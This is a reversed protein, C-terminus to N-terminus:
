IILTGEAAGFRNIFNRSKRIGANADTGNPPNKVGFPISLLISIGLTSWVLTNLNSRNGPKGNLKVDGLL